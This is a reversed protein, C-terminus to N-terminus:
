YKSLDNKDEEKIEKLRQILIYVMTIMLVILLVIIALLFANGAFSNVKSTIMALVAVYFLIFGLVLITVAIPAIMKKM